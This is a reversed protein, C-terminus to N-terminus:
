TAALMSRCRVASQKGDKFASLTARLSPVGPRLGSPPGPGKVYNEVKYFILMNGWLPIRGVIQRGKQREKRLAKGKKAYHKAKQSASFDGEYM